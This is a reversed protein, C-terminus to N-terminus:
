GSFTNTKALSQYVSLGTAEKFLNWVANPSSDNSCKENSTFDKTGIGIEEDTYGFKELSQWKPLIEFTKPM